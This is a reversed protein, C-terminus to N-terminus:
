LRTCLARVSAVLGNEDESVIAPVHRLRVHLGQPVVLGFEALWSRLQNAQATRAKVFGQRARPVALIAQQEVTKIPVLRMSSRTVAECIAEAARAENKNTKM